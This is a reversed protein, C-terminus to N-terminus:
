KGFGLIKGYETALRDVPEAQEATMYLVKKGQVLKFSVTGKDYYIVKPDVGLSAYDFPQHAKKLWLTAHHADTVVMVDWEPPAGAAALTIIKAM